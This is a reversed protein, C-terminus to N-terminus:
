GDPSAPPATVIDIAIQSGQSVKFAGDRIVRDGQRLDAEVWVEDRVRQRLVVDVRELETDSTVRWVYAGNRDWLVSVSPVRPLPQDAHAISVSFTMGPVLVSDTNDVQARVRVTRFEEDISSDFAVVTGSFVRGRLAPTSLRVDVGTQIQEISAESVYFEVFLRSADVLTVIEAGQPIYSGITLDNLNIVGAFPARVVRREYEYLTEEVEASAVALAARAEDLQAQSVATSNQESLAQLRDFSTRQKELEARASELLIQQTRREFTVIPDGTEVTMNPQVHIENITGSFDETLHVLQAAKGTGISQIRSRPPTVDVTSVTVVVSGDPFTQAQAPDSQATEGGSRGQGAANWTPHGFAIVALAGILAGSLLIAVTKWNFM